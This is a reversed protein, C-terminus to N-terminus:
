SSPKPCEQSKNANNQCWGGSGFRPVSGMENRANGLVNEHVDGVQRKILDNGIRAVRLKLELTKM